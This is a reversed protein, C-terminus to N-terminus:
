AALNAMAKWTGPTGAATCVWGPTGAASPATNWIIDGRLWAGAAPAASAWGVTNVSNGWDRTGVLTMGTFVTGTSSSAIHDGGPGFVNGSVRCRDVTGDTQITGVYLGAGVASEFINGEISVSSIAGAFRLFQHFAAPFSILMRNNAFVMGNVNEFYAMIGSTTGIVTNDTVIWDNTTSVTAIATHVFAIFSCASACDVNNGSVVVNSTVGDMRIVKNTGNRFVNGTINVRNIGTSEDSMVVGEDFDYFVNGSVSINSSNGIIYVPNDSMHYFTCGSITLFSVGNGLVIGQRASDARLNTINVFLCSGEVTICRHLNTAAYDWDYVTVDSISVYSSNAVVVASEDASSGAADGDISHFVCDRVTVQDCYEFQVPTRAVNSCDFTFGYVGVGILHSGVQGDFNFAWGAGRNTVTKITAGYGSLYLSKPIVPLYTILYTGPPFLVVSGPTAESLAVSIAATDDTFGDGTAGYGNKVDYVAAGRFLDRYQNIDRAKADQGGFVEYLATM